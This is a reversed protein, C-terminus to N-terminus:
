FPLGFFNGLDGFQKGLYCSTFVALLSKYFYLICESQNFITSDRRVIEM